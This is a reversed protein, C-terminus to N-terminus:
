TPWTMAPPPTSATRATALTSGTTAMAATWSTTAMAAASSTPAPAATSSITAMAATSTIPEPAASSPTPAVSAMSSTTAPGGSVVDDGGGGDLYDDGPGGCLWDDGDGGHLEDNGAGGLVTVGTTASVTVHDDGPGTRVTIHTGSPFRMVQGNVVVRWQGAAPDSEVSVRDDGTGTNVVVRDGDHFVMRGAPEPARPYPEVVGDAVPEWRCAMEDWGSTISTDLHDAVGGPGAETMRRCLVVTARLDAALRRVFRARRGWWGASGALEDAVALAAASYGVTDPVDRRPRSSAVAVRAQAAAFAALYLRDVEDEVVAVLRGVAV